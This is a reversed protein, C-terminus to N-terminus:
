EDNTTAEKQQLAKRLNERIEVIQVPGEDGSSGDFIDPPYIEDIWGLAATAAMDLAVMAPQPMRELELIYKQKEALEGNQFAIMQELEAIRAEVSPSPQTAEVLELNKVVGYRQWFALEKEYKDRMERLYKNARDEFVKYTGTGNDLFIHNDVIDDIQENSYLPVNNLTPQTALQPARHLIALMRDAEERDSAKEEEPLDAYSTNMQRQWREVAWSPMVLSTNEGDHNVAHMKEFMYKMWGAWAEHAYEALAERVDADANVPQAQLTNVDNQQDSM